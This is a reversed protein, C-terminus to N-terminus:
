ENMDEHIEFKRASDVILSFRSKEDYNSKALNKLNKTLEKTPKQLFLLDIGKVGGRQTGMLKTFVNLNTKRNEDVAMEILWKAKCTQSKLQINVLKIGGNYKTKWREKQAITNVKQPYITYLLISNQLDQQTDKDIPYFKIAYVLKSALFTEAVKAKGIQSIKFQKWYNLRKKFSPVIKDFTAKAPNANGFFVGLKFVNKNTWTINMPPIRRRKWSGTWLGKTKNYNVKAGSAEEYDEIEKIVEKFCRNQRIIITTDDAYHASVIKEGEITFGVINPNLRLQLAFVEIVLVYLLASLPCGQRVGRKLPIRDSFYGNINLMSSANSYLKQIWGIFVEGLGFARMTKHLFTHDVRDFAKEQDLFIFAVQDNEENALQILDRILHVTQDIKRGYVATQSMHIISPLIFKLRNALVKTLIKIDVNILSIPRYNTLLYNEGTKKYILKIISTNKGKPIANHQLNNLFGLYLGKIDDWFHQYFEIPIGDLGPSKNEKMDFVALKVEKETISKNLEKNQEKNVKNTINRLLRDQKQRNTNSPTFLKSYFDKSINMINANDTYIQDNIGKALQTIASSSKAKSEVKAYFAIDPEDQHFSPFHRIRTKYGEIEVQELEKLKQMLFEYHTGNQTGSEELSELDQLIQVKLKSKVAAKDRSYAISDSRIISLFTLWRDIGPANLASAETVAGQVLDQYKPDALISTNLKYYSKGLDVSPLRSFSLIKHGHFGSNIYQIKNIYNSQEHNVYVRDIRSKGTANFSWVIRRPNQQRFPDVMDYHELFPKWIASLAKDKSNLGNVKDREHDIFNFDGLIMNNTHNQMESELVETIHKIKEKTLRKNTEFYIAFINHDKGDHQNRVKVNLIRGKILEKIELVQYDRSILALIGSHSENEPAPSLIIHHTQKYRLLEEPVEEASKQHTELFFAMHFNVGFEKEFYLAKDNAHGSHAKLGGCNWALVKPVAM